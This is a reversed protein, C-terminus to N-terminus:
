CETEYAVGGVADMPWVLLKLCACSLAVSFLKVRMARTILARDLLPVWVTAGVM